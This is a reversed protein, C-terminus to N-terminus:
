KRRKKICGSTHDVKVYGGAHDIFLYLPNVRDTNKCDDIKKKTIYGINEKHYVWHWHKTHSKTM